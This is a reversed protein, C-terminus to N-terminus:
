SLLSLVNEPPRGVVARGNVLVIPREILVPNESLILLWEAEPRNEGATLGLELFRKEKQRTIDLASVGLKECIDRLEEASPPTELYEVVQVEAGHEQLLALTARSKSCRPNHLIVNDQM